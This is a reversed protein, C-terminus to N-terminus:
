ATEENKQLIEQLPVVPQKKKALGPNPVRWEGQSDGGRTEAEPRTDHEINKM